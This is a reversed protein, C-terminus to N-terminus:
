PVAPPLGDAGDGGSDAEEAKHQEWAEHLEALMPCLSELFAVKQETAAQRADLEKLCRSVIGHVSSHQSLEDFSSM